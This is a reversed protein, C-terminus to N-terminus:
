LIVLFINSFTDRFETRKAIVKKRIPILHLFFHPLFKVTKAGVLIFFPWM